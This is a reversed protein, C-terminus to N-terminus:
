SVPTLLLSFAGFSDGACLLGFFPARILSFVFNIPPNSLSSANTQQEGSGFLFFVPSQIIPFTIFKETQLVINKNCTRNVMDSDSINVGKNRRHGRWQLEGHNGRGAVGHFASFM